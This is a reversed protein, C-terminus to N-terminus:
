HHHHAHGTAKLRKYLMYGGIAVISLGSIVGLAQSIKEPMVYQFLFLTALGLLFVSVTHTFTVMAGLYAAHKLTGRSGVLYAAVITKGHGPTLAHAAGLGFAVVLAILIMGWTLERQHLMRSLFDGRVVAGAPAAKPTMTSPAVAPPGAPQPIAQILKPKQAIVVPTRETSVWQVSARLDQPPAVTPDQPYETLAHSRDESGQSAVDIRADKGTQIVVEKWGARDEFNHDEYELHGPAADIRLHSTIRIIPLNGAGDAIVFEVSEVAPRLAHGNATFTLDRAWLRAQETAKRQLEAQLSTRELKWDRLLEFTPIEALDLVYVADVHGSSVQVNAYHNISFNGMPHAHLAATVLLVTLTPFFRM